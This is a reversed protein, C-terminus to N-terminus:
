ALVEEAAPVQVPVPNEKAMPMMLFKYFENWVYVASTNGSFAVRLEDGGIASISAALSKCPLYIDLDPWVFSLDTRCQGIAQEEDKQHSEIVSAKKNSYVRAVGADVARIRALAGLLDAAKVTVEQNSPALAYMNQLQEVPYNGAVAPSAAMLARRGAKHKIGVLIREGNSYLNVTDEATVIKGVMKLFTAPVLISGPQKVQVKIDAYCARGQNAGYAILGGETINVFIGTLVPTGDNEDATFETLPLLQHLAAGTMTCLEPWKGLPLDEAKDDINLRSRSKAAKVELKGEKDLTLTIEGELTAVLDKLMHASVGFPKVTEDEALEVEAPVVAKLGMTGNFSSVLILKKQVSFVLNGYLSTGVFNSAASILAALDSKSVIIKVKVCEKSKFHSGGAPKRATKTSKIVSQLRKKRRL